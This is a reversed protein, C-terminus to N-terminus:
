PAEQAPSLRERGTAGAVVDELHYRLPVTENALWLELQDSFHASDTLGSQGGPLINVGSVEDGKLAIVMRMVPGNGHTFDTGSFGPNAADVSWQDGGRPFWKLGMRPDGATLGEALPLTETTVSFLEVLFGFSPDGSLFAALLSEFRAQHRLGWLWQAM